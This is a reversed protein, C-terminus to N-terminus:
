IGSLVDVLGFREMDVDCCECGTLDPLLPVFESRM